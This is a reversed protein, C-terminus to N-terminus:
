SMRRVLDLVQAPQAPRAVSYGLDSVATEILYRNGEQVFIGKLWNRVTEQCVRARLSVAKVQRPDLPLRPRSM